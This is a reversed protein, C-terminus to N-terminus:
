EKKAGKREKIKNLTGFVFAKLREGTLGKKRGKRMLKDHVKKPM